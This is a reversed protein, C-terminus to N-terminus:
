RVTQSSLFLYGWENLEDGFQLKGPLFKSDHSGNASGEFYSGPVADNWVRAEPDEEDADNLGQHLVEFLHFSQDM